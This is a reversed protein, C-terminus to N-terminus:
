TIYVIRTPIHSASFIVIIGVSHVEINNQKKQQILNHVEGGLTAFIVM